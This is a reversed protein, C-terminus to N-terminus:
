PATKNWKLISLNKCLLPKGCGSNLLDIEVMRGIANAWKTDGDFKLFEQFIWVKGCNISCSNCHDTVKSTVVTITEPCWVMGMHDVSVTQTRSWWSATGGYRGRRGGEERLYSQFHAILLVMDDGLHKWTFLLTACQPFIRLCGHFYFPWRTGFIYSEHPYVPHDWTLLGELHCHCSDLQLSIYTFHLHM